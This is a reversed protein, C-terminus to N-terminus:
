KPTMGKLNMQHTTASPATATTEPAGIIKSLSLDGPPANDLVALEKVGGITGIEDEM